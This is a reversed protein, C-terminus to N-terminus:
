VTTLAVVMRISIGLNQPTVAGFGRFRNIYFKVHPIVDAINGERWFEFRDVWQPM